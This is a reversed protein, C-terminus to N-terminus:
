LKNGWNNMGVSCTSRVYFLHRAAKLAGVHRYIGKVALNEPGHRLTAESAASGRTTGTTTWTILEGETSSLHTKFECEGWWGRWRDDWCNSRRLLFEIKRTRKVSSRELRNCM